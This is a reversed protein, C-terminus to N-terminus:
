FGKGWDTPYLDCLFFLCKFPFINFCSQEFSGNQKNDATKEEKYLPGSDLISSLQFICLLYHVCHFFSSSSSWSDNNCCCTLEIAHYPIYRWFSSKSNSSRFFHNSYQQNYLSKHRKQKINMYLHMNWTHTSRQSTWKHIKYLHQHAYATCIHACNLLKKYWISRTGQRKIEEM